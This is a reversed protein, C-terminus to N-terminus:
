EEEIEIRTFPNPDGNEIGDEIGWLGTKKGIDSVAGGVAGGAAKIADKAAGGVQDAAKGLGKELDKAPKSNIAAVVAGVALLAPGFVGIYPGLAVLIAARQDCSLKAWATASPTGPIKKERLKVVAVDAVKCLVDKVKNIEALIRAATWCTIAKLGPSPRSCGPIAM